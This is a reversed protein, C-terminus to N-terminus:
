AHKKPITFIFKSGEGPESEVWIKGKHAEVIAKVISLGLGTGGQKRSERDYIQKFKDFIKEQDEKAIGKGTDSVSCEIAGSVDKVDIHIRGNEPTFKVANSILNIFVQELKSFDALFEVGESISYGANLHRQAILPEFDALCQQILRKIDIREINLEYEGSEIKSLDLLDGALGLLRSSTNRIIELCQKQEENIAGTIGDLVNNVSAKIISLPAKLEHTVMSVFDARMKEIARIKSIDKFVWVAGTVRSDNDKLLSLSSLVPIKANPSPSLIFEAELTNSGSSLLKEFYCVNECLSGSFVQCCERGLVDKALFGSMLEMAPNFSTIKKESDLTILGETLSLLIAELKTKELTLRYLQKDLLISVKSLIEVPDSPSIVADPIAIDRKAKRYGAIFKKVTKIIIEPTNFDKVMFEDAGTELSWFKESEGERSTLMLVPIGSIDKDDKLLRCVQYGNMRPMFIDLLIIDPRERYVSRIAEIGDSSTVTLYGENKFISSLMDRVTPSDDAILIKGKNNM